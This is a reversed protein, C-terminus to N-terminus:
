ESLGSSSDEKRQRAEKAMNIADEETIKGKDVLKTIGELEDVYKRQAVARRAYSSKGKAISEWDINFGVFYDQDILSQFSYEDKGIKQKIEEPLDDYNIKPLEM